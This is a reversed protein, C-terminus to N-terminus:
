LSMCTDHRNKSLAASHATAATTTAPAAATAAASAIRHSHSPYLLSCQHTRNNVCLPETSQVNKATQRWAMTDTCSPQWWQRADSHQQNSARSSSGSSAGSGPEQYRGSRGSGSGAFSYSLPGPVRQFIQSLYTACLAEGFGLLFVASSYTDDRMM